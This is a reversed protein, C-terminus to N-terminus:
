HSHMLGRRGQVCDQGCGYQLGLINLFPLTGDEFRKAGQPKLLKWDLRTTALFVSGGGWYLKRCTALSRQLPDLLALLRASGLLTHRLCRM